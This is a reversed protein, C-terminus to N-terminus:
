FAGVVDEVSVGRVRGAHGAALRREAEDLSAHSIAALGSAAKAGDRVGLCAEAAHGEPHPHNM